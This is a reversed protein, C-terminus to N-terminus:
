AGASITWAGGDLWVDGAVEPDATPLGSVNLSTVVLRAGVTVDEGDDTISPFGASEVLDIISQITTRYYKGGPTRIAISNAADAAVTTGPFRFLAGAM